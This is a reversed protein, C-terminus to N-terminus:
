DKLCPAVEKDKLVRMETIFIYDLTRILSSYIVSRSYDDITLELKNNEIERKILSLMRDLLNSVMDYFYEIAMKGDVEKQWKDKESKRRLQLEKYKDLRDLIANKDGAMLIEHITGVQNLSLWGAVNYKDFFTDIDKKIRSFINRGDLINTLVPKILKKEIM